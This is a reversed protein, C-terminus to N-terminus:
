SVTILQINASTSKPTTLQLKNNKKQLQQKYYECENIKKQYHYLFSIIFAQNKYVNLLDLSECNKNEKKQTLEILKNQEKNMNEVTKQLTNIQSSLQKFFELKAKKNLPDKKIITTPKDCCYKQFLICLIIGMCCSTVCAIIYSQYPELNIPNNQQTIFLVSIILTYLFSHKNFLSM